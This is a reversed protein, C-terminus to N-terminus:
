PASCFEVAGPASVIQRAQGGISESDGQSLGPSSYSCIMTLCRVVVAVGTPAWGRRALRLLSRNAGLMCCTESRAINQGAERFKRPSERDKALGDALLATLLLGDSSWGIGGALSPHCKAKEQRSCYELVM